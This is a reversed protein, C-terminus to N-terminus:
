PQTRTRTRTYAHPQVFRHCHLPGHKLSLKLDILAIIKVHMHARVVVFVRCFASSFCSSCLVCGAWGSRCEYEYNRCRYVHHPRPWGLLFIFSIFDSIIFNTFRIFSNDCEQDDTPFIGINWASLITYQYNRPPFTDTGGGIIGWEILLILDLWSIWVM